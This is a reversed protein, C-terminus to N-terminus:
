RTIMNVGPTLTMLIYFFPKSRTNEASSWIIKQFLVIVEKRHMYINQWFQSHHSQAVNSTKILTVGSTFMIPPCNVGKKEDVRQARDTPKNELGEFNLKM